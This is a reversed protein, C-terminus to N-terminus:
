AKNKLADRLNSNALAIASRAQPSKTVVNLM